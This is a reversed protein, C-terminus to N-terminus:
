YEVLNFYTCVRDEIFHKMTMKDLMGSIENKNYPIASQEISEFHFLEFLQRFGPIGLDTFPNDPVIGKGQLIQKCGEKLLELEEPTINEDPCNFFDNKRYINEGIRLFHSAKAYIYPFQNELAIKQIEKPMSEMLLNLDKYSM